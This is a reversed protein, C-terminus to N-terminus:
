QEHSKDEGGVTIAPLTFLFTADQGAASKVFMRGGYMGIIDYVGSLNIGAEKGAPIVSATGPSPDFIGSLAEPAIVSGQATIKVTVKRQRGHSFEATITSGSPCLNVAAALLEKFVYALKEPDATIEFTEEPIRQTLTLSKSSLLGEASRVSETWVERLDFVGLGVQQGSLEAIHSMWNAIKIVRNTNETIIRLYERQTDNIDGTRGDLIMRAYGRIAGLPTRLDHAINSQVHSAIKSLAEFRTKEDTVKALNAEAIASREAKEALEHNRRKLSEIEQLRALIPSVEHAIHRVAEIEEASLHPGDLPSVLGIAAQLRGDSLLPILVVSAHAAGARRASADPEHTIGVMEGEELKVILGPHRELHSRLWAPVHLVNSAANFLGFCVAIHELDGRISRVLEAHFNESDKVQNLRAFSTKSLERVSIGDM